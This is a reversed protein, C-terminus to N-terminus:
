RLFEVLMAWTVLKSAHGRRLRPSSPRDDESGKVSQSDIIAATPAAPRGVAARVRDRLDDHM